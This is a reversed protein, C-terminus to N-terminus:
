TVTMALLPLSAAIGSPRARGGTGPPSRGNTATSSIAVAKPRAIVTLDSDNRPASGKETMALLPLSAAIGSPRARGGPGPPSRGNTATSSIAM